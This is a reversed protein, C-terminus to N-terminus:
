TKAITFLAIFMPHMYRKSNFLKTQIYAWFLFQQIM